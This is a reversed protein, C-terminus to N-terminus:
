GIAVVLIMQNLFFVMKSDFGAKGLSFWRINYSGDGRVTKQCGGGEGKGSLKEVSLNKGM